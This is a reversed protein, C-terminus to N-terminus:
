KGLKKFLEENKRYRQFMRETLENGALPKNVYIELEKALKVFDPAELAKLFAQGLKDVMSKEM